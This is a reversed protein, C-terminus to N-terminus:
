CVNLREITGEERFNFSFFFWSVHTNMHECLGNKTKFTKKCIFCMWNREESHISLHSSLSDESFFLKGCTDCM